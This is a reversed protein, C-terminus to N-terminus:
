KGVLVLLNRRKFFVLENEHFPELSRGREIGKWGKPKSQGESM